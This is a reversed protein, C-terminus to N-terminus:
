PGARFLSLRVTKSVDARFEMSRDDYGEHKATLLHPTASQDLQLPNSRIPKGDVLLKSNEPDIVFLIVVQSAPPPMDTPEESKPGAVSAPRPGLRWSMIGAGGVVAVVLGAILPVRSPKASAGRSQLPRVEDERASAAQTTRTQVPALTSPRPAASPRDALELPSGSAAVKPPPSAQAIPAFGPASFLDREKSPKPAAIEDLAMVSFSSDGPLNVAASPSSSSLNALAATLRERMEKASRPRFRKEKSMADEILQGLARPIRPSLEYPSPPTDMLLSTLVVMAEDGLFPCRGCIM